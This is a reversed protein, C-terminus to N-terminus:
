NKMLCSKGRVFQSPVEAATSPSTVGMTSAKEQDSSSTNAHVKTRPVETSDKNDEFVERDQYQSLPSTSNSNRVSSSGQLRKVKVTDSTRMDGRDETVSHIPLSPLHINKEKAIKVLHQRVVELMQCQMMQQQWLGFVTQMLSPVLDSSPLNNEVIQAVAVSTNKLTELKVNNVTRASGVADEESSGEEEINDEYVAEDEYTDGSKDMGSSKNSCLPSIDQKVDKEQVCKPDFRKCSTEELCQKVDENSDSRMQCDDLEYEVDHDKVGQKWETEEMKPFIENFTNLESKVGGKLSSTNETAKTRLYLRKHYELPTQNTPPLDAKDKSGLNTTSPDKIIELFPSCYVCM